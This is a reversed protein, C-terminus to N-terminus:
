RTSGDDNDADRMAATLEQLLGAQGDDMGLNWGYGHPMSLSVDWVHVMDGDADTLTLRYTKM